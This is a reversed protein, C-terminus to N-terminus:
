PFSSYQWFIDEIKKFCNNITKKGHGLDSPGPMVMLCGKPMNKKKKFILHSALRLCAAVHM